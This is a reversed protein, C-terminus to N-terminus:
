PPFNIPPAVSLFRLSELADLYRANESKTKANFLM